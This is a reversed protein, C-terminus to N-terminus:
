LRHTVRDGQELTGVGRQDLFVALRDAYQGALVEQGEEGLASENLHPNGDRSDPFGAGAM